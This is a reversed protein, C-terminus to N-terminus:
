TDLVIGATGGYKIEGAGGRRSRKRRRQRSQEWPVDYVDDRLIRRVEVTVPM